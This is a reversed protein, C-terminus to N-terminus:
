RASRDRIKASAKPAGKLIRALKAGLGEYKKYAIRYGLKEITQM